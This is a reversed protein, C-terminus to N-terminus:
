AKSAEITELGFASYRAGPPYRYRSWRDERSRFRTHNQSNDRFLLPGSYLLQALRLKLVLTAGCGLATNGAHGDVWATGSSGNRM